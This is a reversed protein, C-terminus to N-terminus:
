VTHASNVEPSAIRRARPRPVKAAAENTQVSISAYRPKSSRGTAPSALLTKALSFVSKQERNAAGTADSLLPYPFGHKSAFNSQRRVSHKRFGVM